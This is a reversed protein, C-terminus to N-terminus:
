AKVNCLSEIIKHCVKTIAGVKQVKQVNSCFDNKASEYLNILAHYSNNLLGWLMWSTKFM